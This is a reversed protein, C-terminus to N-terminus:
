CFIFLVIIVLSLINAPTLSDGWIQIRMNNLKGSHVDFVPLSKSKMFMFNIFTEPISEFTYNGGGGGILFLNRTFPLFDTLLKYLTKTKLANEFITTVSCEINYPGWCYSVNFGDKM